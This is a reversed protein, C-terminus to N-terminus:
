ILMLEEIQAVSANAGALLTKGTETLSAEVIRGHGVRPVRSWDPQRSRQSGAYQSVRM